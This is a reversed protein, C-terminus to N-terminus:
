CTPENKTRIQAWKQHACKKVKTRLPNMESAYTPEFEMSMFLTESLSHYLSQPCALLGPLIAVDLAEIALHPIFQEVALDEVRQCFSLHQNFVPPAVVVFSSGM